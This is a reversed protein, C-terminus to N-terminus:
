PRVGHPEILGLGYLVFLLVFLGVSVGIRLSLAKATRKSDGKDKVLFVLASGLSGLIGLFVLVILIKSAM